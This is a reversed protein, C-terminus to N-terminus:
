LVSLPLFVSWYGLITSGIFIGHLIFTIHYPPCSLPLTIEFSVKIGASFFTFYPIKM